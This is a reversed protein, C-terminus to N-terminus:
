QVLVSRECRVIHIFALDDQVLIDRDDANFVALPSDPSVIPPETLRGERLIADCADQTSTSPIRPTDVM